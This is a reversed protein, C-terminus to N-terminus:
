LTRSEVIDIREKAIKMSRERTFEEITEKSRQYELQLQEEQHRKVGKKFKYSGSKSKKLQKRRKNEMKNADAGNEAMAEQDVESTPRKENETQSYYSDDVMEEDDKRNQNAMNSTENEVSNSYSSNNETCRRKYKQKSEEKATSNRKRTDKQSRKRCKPEDRCIPCSYHFTDDNYHKKLEM